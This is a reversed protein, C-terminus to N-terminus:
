RSERRGLFLIDACLMCFGRWFTSHFYPLTCDEGLHIGLDQQPHPQVITLATTKCCYAAVLKPYPCSHSLAPTALYTALLTLAMPLIHM